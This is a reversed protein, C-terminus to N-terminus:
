HRTVYGYWYQAPPSNIVSNLYKDLEDPYQLYVYQGKSFYSLYSQQQESVTGVSIIVLEFQVHKELAIRDVEVRDLSGCRTDIGSTVVFIQHIGRRNALTNIAQIVAYQLPAFGHPEIKELLDLEQIIKPFGDKYPMPKVLETTDNCGTRGGLNGGMVTLGVDVRDTTSAELKIRPGIKSFLNTMQESSDVLFYVTRRESFTTFLYNSLIFLLTATVMIVVLTSPKQRVLRIFRKWFLTIIILVLIGTIIISVKGELNPFIAQILFDVISVITLSLVSFILKKQLESQRIKEMM